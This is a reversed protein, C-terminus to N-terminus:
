IHLEGTITGDVTYEELARFQTAFTSWNSAAKYSNVLASPVYVYGDKSGNPNYTANTTGLFHYANSLINTGATCLTTSRLIVAKLSYCKEFAYNGIETAKPLDVIELAPCNSFQSGAVETLKPFNATKLGNNYAFASAGVYTANPFYAVELGAGRFAYRGVERVLPFDITKLASTDYFAYDGVEVAKPFDASELAACNYFVYGEVTALNSNVSKIGRSILTDLISEADPLAEAKEIAEDILTNHSLIRERNTM